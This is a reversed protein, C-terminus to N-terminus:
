EILEPPLNTSKLITAYGRAISEWYKADERLRQVEALLLPADAILEATATLELMDEECVWCPLRLVAERKEEGEAIVVDMHGDTDNLAAQWPGEYHGEYKNTDIM